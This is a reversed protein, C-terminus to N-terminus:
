CIQSSVMLNHTRDRAESLSHTLSRANDQATTYDQSGGYTMPTARFLLFFFWFWFLVCFFCGLGWCKIYTGMGALLLTHGFPPFWPLGQGYCTNSGMKTKTRQEPNARGGEPSFLCYLPVAGLFGLIYYILNVLMTRLFVALECILLWGLSCGATRFLGGM